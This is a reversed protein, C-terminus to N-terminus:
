HHSLFKNERCIGMQKVPDHSRLVSSNVADSPKRNSTKLVKISCLHVSSIGQEIHEKCFLVEAFSSSM